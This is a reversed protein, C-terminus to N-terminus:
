TAWQAEEVAARYRRLSANIRLSLSTKGESNAWEVAGTLLRVLYDEHFTSLTLRVSAGYGMITNENMDCFEEYLVVLERTEVSAKGAAKLTEVLVTAAERSRQTFGHINAGFQGFFQDFFLQCFTYAEWHPDFEDNEDFNGSKISDVHEDVYNLLEEDLGKETV